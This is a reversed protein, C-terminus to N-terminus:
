ICKLISRSKFSLTIMTVPPALPMPSPITLTRAASPAIGTTTPLLSSSLLFTTCFHFCSATLCKLDLSFQSKGFTGLFSYLCHKLLISLDVSQHIICTNIVADSQFFSVIFLKHSGKMLVHDMIIQHRM